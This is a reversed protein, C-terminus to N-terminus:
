SLPGFEAVYEELVKKHALEEVQIISELYALIEVLGAEAGNKIYLDPIERGEGIALEWTAGEWGTIRGSIESDFTFAPAGLKETLLAVVDDVMRFAGQWSHYKRTNKGDDLFYPTHNAAMHRGCIRARYQDLTLQM